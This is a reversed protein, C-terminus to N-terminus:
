EFLVLFKSKPIVVDCALDHHWEMRSKKLDSGLRVEITGCCSNLSCGITFLLSQPFVVSSGTKRPIPPPKPALLLEM